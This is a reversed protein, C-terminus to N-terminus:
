RISENENGDFLTPFSGKKLSLGKSDKLHRSCVLAEPSPKWNKEKGVKRNERGMKGAVRTRKNSFGEQTWASQNGSM